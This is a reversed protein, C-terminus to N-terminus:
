RWSGAGVGRVTGFTVRRAGFFDLVVDAVPVFAQSLAGPAAQTVLGAHDLVLTLGPVERAAYTAVPIQHPLVVLDLVTLDWVHHQADIVMM